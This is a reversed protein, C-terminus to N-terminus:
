LHCTQNSKDADIEVELRDKLVSIAADRVSKAIERPAYVYSRWKNHAYAEIWQEVPFYEQVPEVPGDKSTQIRANGSLPPLAPVSLRIDDKNSVNRVETKLRKHIESEIDALEKPLKTLDILKQRGYRCHSFFRTGRL